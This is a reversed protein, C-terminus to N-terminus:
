FQAGLDAEMVGFLLKEHHCIVHSYTWQTSTDMNSSCQTYSILYHYSVLRSKFWTDSLFSVDSHIHLVLGSAHFRTIVEPYTAAYNLLTVVKKATVQTIKAQEESISNLTVLMTLNFVRAYYVFTGVM